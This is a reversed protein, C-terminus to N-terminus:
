VFSRTRMSVINTIASGVLRYYGHYVLYSLLATM